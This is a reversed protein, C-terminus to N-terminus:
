VDKVLRFSFRKFEQTNTRSQIKCRIICTTNDYEWQAYFDCARDRYARRRYVRYARFHLKGDDFGGKPTYSYTEPLFHAICCTPQSQAVPRSLIGRSCTCGFTYTPDHFRGPTSPFAIRAAWARDTQENAPFSLFRAPPAHFLSFSLPLSLAFCIRSM